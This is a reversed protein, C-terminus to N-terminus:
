YLKYKPKREGYLKWRLYDDLLIAVGSLAMWAFTFPLSIQGMVNLPVGSYDWIGLGLWINLICGAIFEAVTVIVGGIACQQILGLSWPLYNNLGGVLLFCIGGLVFMSPHSHGRYALEILYYIFGGYLWLTFLRLFKSM